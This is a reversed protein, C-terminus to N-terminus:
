AEYNEIGFPYGFCDGQHDAALLHAVLAANQFFLTEGFYPFVLLKLGLNLVMENAQHIPEIQCIGSTLTRLQADYYLREGVGRGFIEISDLTATHDKGYPTPNVIIMRDIGLTNAMTKYTDINAEPSPTYGRGPSLAYRDHAGFIHFHCDTSGAPGKHKPESATLPTPSSPIQDTPM